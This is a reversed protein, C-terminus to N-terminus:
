FTIYALDIISGDKNIITVTGDDSIVIAIIRSTSFDYVWREPMIAPITEEIKFYYTGSELEENLNFSYRYSKPGIVDTTM